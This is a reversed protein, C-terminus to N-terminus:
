VRREEPEAEDASSSKGSACWSEGLAADLSRRESLPPAPGTPEYDAPSEDTGNNGSKNSRQSSLLHETQAKMEERHELAFDRRAEADQIWRPTDPILYMLLVKIVILM